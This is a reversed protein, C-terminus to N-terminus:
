STQKRQVFRIIDRIRDLNGAEAEDAKVEIDFKEEIFGILRLADTSDILGSTRLPTDDHLSELSENALLEGLFQRLATRIEEAQYM